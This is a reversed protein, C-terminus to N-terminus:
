RHSWDQVARPLCVGCGPAVRIRARRAALTGRCRRYMEAQGQIRWDTAWWRCRGPRGPRRHNRVTPCGPRPYRRRPAQYRRVNLNTPACRTKQYLLHTASPVPLHLSTPQALRRCAQDASNRNGAVAWQATLHAARRPSAQRHTAARHGPRRTAWRSQGWRQSMPVHLPRHRRATTTRSLHRTQWGSAPTQCGERIGAPAAVWHAVQVMPAAQTPDARDLRVSSEATRVAWGSNPAVLSVGVAAVSEPCERVTQAAMGGAHGTRVLDALPTRGRHPRAEDWRGHGRLRRHM